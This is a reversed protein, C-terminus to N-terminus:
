QSFYSSVVPRQGIPSSHTANLSKTIVDQGFLNSSFSFNEINARM